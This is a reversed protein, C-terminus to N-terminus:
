MPSVKIEWKTGEGKLQLLRNKLAIGDETLRHDDEFAYEECLFTLEEALEEFTKHISDGSVFLGLEECEIKWKTENGDELDVSLSINLFHSGDM